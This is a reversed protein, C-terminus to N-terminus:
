KHTAQILCMPSQESTILAEVKFGANDLVQHWDSVSRIGGGFNVLLNLDHAVVQQFVDTYAPNQKIMQADPVFFDFIFLKSDANMAKKCQNFIDTAQEDNWNLLVRCLSYVTKGEYSPLQEFFSGPCTGLKSKVDNSLETLTEFHQKTNKITEPRDFVIGKSLNDYRQLLKIVLSGQGGGLDVFNDFSKLDDCQPILLDMFYATRDNWQDFCHSMEPENDLHEFFPKNHVLDWSPKATKVTEMSKGWALYATRDFGPGDISSVYPLLPGESYVDDKLERILGITCMGRIFRRLTQKDTNTKNALQALSHSEGSLIEHLKLELCLLILQTHIYGHSLKNFEFYLEHPQKEELNDNTPLAQESMEWDWTCISM